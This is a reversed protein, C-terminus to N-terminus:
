THVACCVALVACCLVACCRHPDELLQIAPELVLSHWRDPLSVAVPKVAIVATVTGMVGQKVKYNRHVWAPALKPLATRLDWQQLIIQVVNAAAELTQSNSDGLCDIQLM